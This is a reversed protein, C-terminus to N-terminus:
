PAHTPVAINRPTPDDGGTDANAHGCRTDAQGSAPRARAQPGFIGQGAAVNRALRLPRGAASTTMLVGAANTKFKCIVTGKRQHRGAHPCLVCETGRRGITAQAM